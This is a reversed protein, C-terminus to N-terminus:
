QSREQEQEKGREHAIVAFEQLKSYKLQEALNQEQDHEVGHGYAIVQTQKQARSLQVLAAERGDGHAMVYAHNVEVDRATTTTVAYGLELGRYLRTNILRTQGSDLKVVAMRTVSDLHKLTGLTGKTVGYTHSSETLLLRDGKYFHDGKVKVAVQSLVGSEIRAHQALQNLAKADERTETIMLHQRPHRIGQPKWAQVTQLMAEEKHEVFTLQGQEILRRVVAQSEGQSMQQVITQAQEDEQRVVQKLKIHGFRQAIAAFAGRHEYSQQQKLDGCLILKAGAQNVETILRNMQATNIRQADDVIVVTRNSLPSRVVSQAGYRWQSNQVYDLAAFLRHVSMTQEPSQEVFPEWWRQHSLETKEHLKEMGRRSVAVGLVEHGNAQYIDRLVKVTHTKGTGTLGSLVSLRSPQTVTIIAQEQEPRIGHRMVAQTVTTQRVRYGRSQKLTQAHNLLIQ